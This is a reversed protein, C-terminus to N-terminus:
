IILLTKADDFSIVKGVVNSIEAFRAQEIRENINKLDKNIQDLAGIIKAGDIILQGEDNQTTVDINKDLIRLKSIIEYDVYDRGLTKLLDILQTVLGHITILNERTALFQNASAPLPLHGKDLEDLFTRSRSMESIEFALVGDSAMLSSIIAM